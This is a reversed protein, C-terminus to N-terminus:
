VTFIDNKYHTGSFACLYSDKRVNGKVFNKNGLGHEHKEVSFHQCEEFEEVYWHLEEGDFGLDFVFRMTKEKGKEVGTSAVRLAM